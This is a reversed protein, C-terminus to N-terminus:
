ISSQMLNLIHLHFILQSDIKNIKSDDVYCDQPCIGMVDMQELKDCTFDPCTIRNTSCSSYNIGRQRDADVWECVWGYSSSECESKFGFESCAYNPLNNVNKLKQPLQTVVFKVTMVDCIKSKMNAATIQDSNFYVMELTAGDSQRILDPNDVYLINSHGAFMLALPQEKGDQAIIRRDIVQSGKLEKFDYVRTYKKSNIDITM